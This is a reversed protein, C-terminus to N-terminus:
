CAIVASRLEMESEDDLMEASNEHKDAGGGTLFAVKEISEDEDL